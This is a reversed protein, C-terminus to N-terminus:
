ILFPFFPPLFFLPSPFITVYPWMVCFLLIFESVRRSPKWFAPFCKELLLLEKGQHSWTLSATVTKSWVGEEEKGERERKIRCRCSLQNSLLIFLLWLSGVPSLCCPSPHGDRLGDRSDGGAIRRGRLLTPPVPCPSFYEQANRYEVERRRACRPHAIQEQSPLAECGERRFGHPVPLM